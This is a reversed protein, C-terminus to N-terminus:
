QNSKLNQIPKVMKAKQGFRLTNLTETINNEKSSCTIIFLTKTNENFTNKLYHTLKSDRYPIFSNNDKTFLNIVREFTILSQNVLSSEIFQSQQKVLRESGALEILKLSATKVSSKSISEQEINVIILIHMRSNTQGMKSNEIMKNKYGQDIANTMEEKDSVIKETLNVIQVDGTEASKIKLNSSNTEFLDQIMESYITIMSLKITYKIENENLKISNFVHEIMRQIIGKNTPLNNNGQLTYSKGSGTQGYTFITGNSGNLVAEIVEKASQNYVEEQTANIPFIGDFSFSTYNDTSTLSSSVNVTTDSVIEYFHPTLETNLAAIEDKTKADYDTLPHFRCFVKVLSDFSNNQEMRTLSNCFM